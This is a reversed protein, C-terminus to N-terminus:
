RQGCVQRRPRAWQGGGERPHEPGECPPVSVRLCPHTALAGAGHGHPEGKQPAALVDPTAPGSGQEQCLGACSDLADTWLWLQSCGWCTHLKRRLIQESKLLDTRLFGVEPMGRYGGKCARPQAPPWSSSPPTLSPCKEPQAM